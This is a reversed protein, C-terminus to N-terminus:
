RDHSSPSEEDPKTVPISAHLPQEHWELIEARMEALHERLARVPAGIVKLARWM